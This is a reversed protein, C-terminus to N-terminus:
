LSLATGLRLRTAAGGPLATLAQRARRTSPLSLGTGSVRCAAWTNGVIPDEITAQRQWHHAPWHRLRPALPTGRGLEVRSARQLHNSSFLLRTLTGM